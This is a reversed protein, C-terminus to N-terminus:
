RCRRFSCGHCGVELGDVPGDSLLTKDAEAVHTGGPSTDCVPWTSAGVSAAALAGDASLMLALLEALTLVGLTRPFVRGNGLESGSAMRADLGAGLGGILSRVDPLAKSSDIEDGRHAGLPSPLSGLPLGADLHLFMHRRRSGRWGPPGCRGPHVGRAQCGLFGRGVNGCAACVAATQRPAGVDSYDLCCSGPGAGWPSAGQIGTPPLTPTLPGIGFLDSSPWGFVMAFFFRAPMSWTSARLALSIVTGSGSGSQCEM